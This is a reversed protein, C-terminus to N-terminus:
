ILHILKDGILVEPMHKGVMMVRSDASFKRVLERSEKMPISLEQNFFQIIKNKQSRPFLVMYGVSNHAQSSWVGSRLSHLVLCLTIGMHRYVRLGRNILQRMQESCCTDRYDDAFIVTGPEAYEIRRAIENKFFEEPNDYESNKLGDEGADIGTVWKSYKEHRLEKLTKDRHYQASIIIFNRRDEKKGKLNRLCLEKMWWTKGSNTSGVVLLHPTFQKQPLFNFQFSEPTDKLDMSIQLAEKIHRKVQFYKKSEIVTDSEIGLLISEAQEKSLEFMDRFHGDNFDQINEYTNKYKDNSVPHWYAVGVKRNGKVIDCIKIAEPTKHLSLM